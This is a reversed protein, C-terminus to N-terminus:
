QVLHVPEYQMRESRFAIGHVQRKYVDQRNFCFFRVWQYEFGDAVKETSFASFMTYSQDKSTYLLCLRSLGEKSKMTLFSEREKLLPAALHKKLFPKRIIIQELM